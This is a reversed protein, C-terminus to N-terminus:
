KKNQYEPWICFQVKIDRSRSALKNHSGKIQLLVINNIRTMLILAKISLQTILPWKTILIYSLILM